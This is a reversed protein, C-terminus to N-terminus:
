LAASKDAAILFINPPPDDNVLLTLKVISLPPANNETCFLLGAEGAVAIFSLSIVPSVESLVAAEGKFIVFPLKM